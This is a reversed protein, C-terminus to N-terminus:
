NPVLNGAKSVDTWTLTDSLSQFTPQPSNSQGPTYGNPVVWNGFFNHAAMNFNWNAQAVGVRQSQAGPPQFVIFLEFHGEIKADWEIATRDKVYPLLLPVYPTDSNGHVGPGTPWASQSPAYPDADDLSWSGNLPNHVGPTAGTAPVLWSVNLVPQIKQVFAWTGGEGFGAPLAVNAQFVVGLNVGPL